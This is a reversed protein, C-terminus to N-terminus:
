SEREIYAEGYDLCVKKNSNEDHYISVTTNDESKVITDDKLLEIYEDITAPTTCNVDIAIKELTSDDIVTINFEKSFNSDGDDTNIRISYTGTNLLTSDDTKLLDGSINFSTNNTETTAL